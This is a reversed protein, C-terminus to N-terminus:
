FYTLLCLVNLPILLAFRLGFALPLKTLLAFRSVIPQSLIQLPCLGSKTNPNM